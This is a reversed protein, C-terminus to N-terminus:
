ILSDCFGCRKARLPVKAFCEPCRESRSEKVQPKDTKEVGLMELEQEPNKFKPAEPYVPGMYTGSQEGTAQRRAHRVPDVPSGTPGSLPAVAYEFRKSDGADPLGSIGSTDM